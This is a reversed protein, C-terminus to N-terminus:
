EIIKSSQYTSAYPGLSILILQPLCSFNPFYLQPKAQLWIRRLLSVTLMPLPVASLEKALVPLNGATGNELQHWPQTDEVSVHFQPVVCHLHFSYIIDTVNLRVRREDM